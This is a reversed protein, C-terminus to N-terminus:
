KIVGELVARFRPQLHQMLLAAIAQDSLDLAVGDDGARARIGGHLDSAAYLTVGAKLKEQALGLVYKTLAGSQIDDANATIAEPGVVEAPLIVSAGEGVSAAQGARGVLELVMRRLMEPDSMEASVMRQVDQEFQAMLTSKMTLVADRMATNLAEEGARAYRDAARKAEARTRDAADEADAVIRAAEAQADAVLREAEATGAAVGDHRLRAILADVGKATEQEAAM